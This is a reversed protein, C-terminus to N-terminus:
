KNKIFIIDEIAKDVNRFGNGVPYFVPYCSFTNKSTKLEYMQKRCTSVTINKNLLISSVLNGFLIVKEPKIIDLEKLLYEEYERFVNEPLYRADVQTCKALNTIYLNNKIVENYVIECFEKTWESSKLKQIQENLESDFLGCKTLVKWIQKTGLWQFRIGKWTKSTAINRSTPNMFVLCMKPNEEKGGGYVCNLESSGYLAQMENFKNQLTKM